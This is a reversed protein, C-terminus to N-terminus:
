HKKVIQKEFIIPVGNANFVVCYGHKAESLFFEYGRHLAGVFSDKDISTLDVLLWCNGEEDKLHNEIGNTRIEKEDIKFISVSHNQFMVLGAQIKASLLASSYLIALDECDGGMDKLTQEPHKVYDKLSAEVPSKGLKSLEDELKIQDWFTEVSAGPDYIYKIGMSKLANYIEKATGWSEKKKSKALL